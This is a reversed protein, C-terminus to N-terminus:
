LSKLAEIVVENEEITNYFYPSIRVLGPRSDVIIGRQALAAVAPRPDEFELLVIPTRQEPTPATRTTFGAEQARAILDETLAVDRERIREVGVEEIISLGGLAAYVAAMAPTGMEYRTAEQRWQLSSINFDFQNSMGWWGAITPEMHGVGPSVYLFASGPGGLLWKLSGSTYFDVGADVVDTPIQGTGQYADVLILAGKEHALRALAKMDQIAGSTFYVHSTVVLATEEDIAAEFLELPVTVRDPSRIIEVQVGRTGKALFQHGVTPFDLDSMIIKKRRSHDLASAVGTVAVSINPTLAIRDPTAGIVRGYAARLEALKGVWLEYWASAGMEAWLELFEQVRAMSRRSVAGLSCTNLFTKRSLIPFEDRYALLDRHPDTRSAESTYTQM